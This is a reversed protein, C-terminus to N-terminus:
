GALEQDFISETQGLNYNQLMNSVALKFDPLEEYKNEAKWNFMPQKLIPWSMIKTGPNEQRGIGATAMTQVAVRTVEAIAQLLNM